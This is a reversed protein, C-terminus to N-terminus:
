GSTSAPSNRPPPHSVRRHQPRPQDAGHQARQRHSAHDPKPDRATQRSCRISPRHRSPRTDRRPPSSCKRIPRPDTRDTSPPAAQRTPDTGPPRRRSPASIPQATTAPTAAPPATSVRGLQSNNVGNTSPHRTNTLRSRHRCRTIPKHINAAIQARSTDTTSECSDPPPALKNGRRQLHTRTQVVAQIRLRRPRAVHRKGRRKISACFCSSAAAPRERSPIRPRPQIPPQAIRGHRPCALVRPLHHPQSPAFNAASTSHRASRRALKATPRQPQDHRRTVHGHQHEPHDTSHVQPRRPQGSDSHAQERGHVEGTQM